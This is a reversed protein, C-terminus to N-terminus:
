FALTAFVQLGQFTMEGGLRNVLIGRDYTYRNYKYQVGVGVNRLVYFDAAVRWDTVSADTNEPSVKIYLFDGRVVLRKALWGSVYGGVAGTVSGTSAAEDLTESTPAGGPGQISGTAEVRVDVWLYGIGLTPGVEFRENRVLAFRYYGGLLDSKAYSASTLGARYTEGGWTFERELTFGGRDRELNTYALEVQHRRAIRWRGNLWFTGVEQDLGLDDEFDVQGSNGEPGNYRLLTDAQMLFYGTEFRFRDPVDTWATTSSQALAATGSALVVLLPIATRLM